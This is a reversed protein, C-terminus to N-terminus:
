RSITCRVTRLSLSSHNCTMTAIQLTKHHVGFFSRFLLSYSHTFERLKKLQIQWVQLVSVYRMVSLCEELDNSSPHSDWCALHMRSISQVFDTAYFPNIWNKIRGDNIHILINNPETICRVIYFPPLLAAKVSSSCRVCRHILNQNTPYTKELIACVNLPRM